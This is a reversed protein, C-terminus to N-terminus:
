SVAEIPLAVPVSKENNRETVVVRRHKGDVLLLLAPLLFFDAVLACVIALSTLYGMYATVRFNSLGLMTFGVSVIVTTGLIAPGVTKFAYRIAEEADYNLEDRARRYKSLFHVTDDVIIGISLGAVVSVAFGVEGMFLAWIGFALVSPLINPVLSILGTRASSLAFGLILSIIGFGLLTGILMSEINRRTINSFMLGTSAPRAIKMTETGNRQLWRDSAETSAELENLDIDRYTIDLRLASKDVNIQNNVDLGYPLSMEYLLLYQAALEQSEPLRYFSADDAHLNKNLRKVIDSYSNVHQVEPRARLWNTFEDVKALFIPDNVSSTGGAELSYSAKYIGTLHKTSFDTARRFDIKTSFYEHFRDNVKLTFISAFAIVSVSTLTIGLPRAYRISFNAIADILKGTFQGGKAARIPLLSLMTPLVTMSFAWAAMVGVATINGLLRFPPADSFNLSLFGVATTISTLFVPQANVRFAEHIADHKSKGDRLAAFFTLLIHISDAVGLTLIIVPASASVPDLNFGLFGFLGVAAIASLSVVALTIFTGLGSRLFLVMTITFVVFM